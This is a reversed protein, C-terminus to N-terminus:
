EPTLMEATGYPSHTERKIWDALLRFYGDTIRTDRRTGDAAQEFEYMGHDTRPFRVISIPKGERRLAQLREITVIPPAERDEGAVIWLQPARVRRLHGIADYRWDLDLNDYKAPGERRLTPEDSALLAGTFEGTIATFWPQAGYRAKVAALQDFGSTFHSAIVAGTADTIERAEAIVTDGYGKERLESFVQESDEELPNILLGFGIAVFEAGADNAARPAVWGGQSGGFLGFRSFRGKALRKAETSAAVVDAALRHFNQHYRGESAGAGHKDYVFAAIGQAAFVFPYPNRNISASSESGHVMVALPPKKGAKVDPEVLMGALMADGSKFRTPTMRLAMRPWREVAGSPGTVMLADASCQVAGGKTSGYRGDRFTYRWEGDEASKARETIVIFDGDAGRYAGPTCQPAAPAAASSTSVAFIGLLLPVSFRM